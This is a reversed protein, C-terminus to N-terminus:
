AARVAGHDSGPYRVLVSSFDGIGKTQLLNSEM